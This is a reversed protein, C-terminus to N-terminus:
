KANIKTIISTFMYIFETAEQILSDFEPDTFDVAAKLGELWIRSEKAEKRSIKISKAFDKKSMAESAEAYNAPVSGSSATLQSIIRSTRPNIPCKKCLEIARLFFNKLRVKFLRNKERKAKINDQYRSNQPESTRIMM